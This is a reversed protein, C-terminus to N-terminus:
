EGLTGACLRPVLPGEDEVRVQAALGGVGQGIEHACSDVLSVGDVNDVPLGRLGRVVGLHEGVNGSDSLVDHVQKVADRAHEVVEVDDDEGQGMRVWFVEEVLHDVAELWDGQAAGERDDQGSQLVEDARHGDERNSLLQFTGLALADALSWYDSCYNRKLLVYKYVAVPRIDKRQESVNDM